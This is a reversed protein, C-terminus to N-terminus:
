WPALQIRALAIGTAGQPVSVMGLFETESAYAPTDIIRGPGANVEQVKGDSLRVVWAVTPRGQVLVVNGFTWSSHVALTDPLVAVLKATTSLVSPDNTFPASWLEVSPQYIANPNADGYHEIWNLTTGDTSLGTVHRGALGRFLTTSGDSNVLYAESWGTTGHESRAFVSTGSVVPQILAPAGSTIVASSSGLPFRAIQPSTMGFAVTTDSFALDSVTRFNSEVDGPVLSFPPSAAFVSPVDFAVLSPHTPLLFLVGLKDRAPTAGPSCGAMMDSRWALVADFSPVKFVDLEAVTPGLLTNSVLYQAPGGAASEAAFRFGTPPAGLPPRPLTEVCNPKGNSCASWALPPVEKQLDVPVSVRCADPLGPARAWGDWGGDWAGGDAFSDGGGDRPPAADGGETGGDTPTIPADGSGCHTCAVSGITAAAATTALAWRLQM